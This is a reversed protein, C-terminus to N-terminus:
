SCEGWTNTWELTSITVTFHALCIKSGICWTAKEFAYFDQKRHTQGRRGTRPMNTTLTPSSTLRRWSWRSSPIATAALRPLWHALCPAPRRCGGRDGTGGIEELESMVVAEELGLAPHSAPIAPLAAGWDGGALRCRHCPPPAPRPWRRARWAHSPHLLLALPMGTRSPM